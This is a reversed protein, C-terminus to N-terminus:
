GSTSPFAAGRNSAERPSRRDRGGSDGHHMTITPSKTQSWRLVAFDTLQKM